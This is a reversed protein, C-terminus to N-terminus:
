MKRSFLACSLTKGEKKINIKDFYNTETTAFVFASECPPLFLCTPLHWYLCFLSILSISLFSQVYEPAERTKRGCHHRAPVGSSNELVCLLSVTNSSVHLLVILFLLSFFIVSM